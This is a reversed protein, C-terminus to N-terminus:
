TDDIRTRDAVVHRCTVGGVPRPQLGSVHRAFAIGLGIEAAHQSWPFQPRGVVWRRRSHQIAVLIRDHVRGRRDIDHRRQRELMFVADARQLPQPRHCRPLVPLLEFIQHSTATAIVKTPDTLPLEVLPLLMESLTWAVAPATLLSKTMMMEPVKPRAPVSPRM